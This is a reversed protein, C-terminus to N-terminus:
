IKEYIRFFYLKLLIKCKCIESIEGIPLIKEYGACRVEKVIKESKSYRGPEIYERRSFFNRAKLEEM